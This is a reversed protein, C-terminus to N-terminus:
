NAPQLSRGSSPRATACAVAAGVLVIAVAALPGRDRLKLYSCLLMAKISKDVRLLRVSLSQVVQNIAPSVVLKKDTVPSTVLTCSNM